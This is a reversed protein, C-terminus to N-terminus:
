PIRGGTQYADSRARMPRVRSSSTEIELDCSRARPPNCAAERDKGNITAVCTPNTENGSSSADRLEGRRGFRPQNTSSINAVPRLIQLMLVRPGVHFTRARTGGSMWGTVVPGYRYM